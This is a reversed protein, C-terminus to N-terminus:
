LVEALHVSGYTGVRDRRHLAAAWEPFFRLSRRAFEPLFSADQAASRMLIRSGPRSNALLLEWEEELAPRDHRVLWDQHDLLVFHSYTGPNRRLFDSVTTTHTRVRDVRDALRDFHEARLYEPCCGSAYSGTLYVRWFYNDRTMVETAVHRLKDALYSALGGPYGDRILQLQSRPVGLLSMVWPQRVLWSILGGWILPEIRTYIAQQECLSDADMLDLLGARLAPRRLLVRTFLWAATGATGHYYFSPRGRHRDFYGIRRDWFAASPADLHPRAAAYVRAYGDHSGKGFMAYLDDFGGLRFLALKLQLLANQRPNVDVAHITAPSDLLYDLANCGASTVMVVRSSGDLALLERDIRPDEWCTNYILHRNHVNRFFLDHAARGLRSGAGHSTGM